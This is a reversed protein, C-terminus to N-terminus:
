RPEREGPDAQFSRATPMAVTAPACLPVLSFNFEAEAFLGEVGGNLSLNSLLQWVTIPRREFPKQTLLQRTAV